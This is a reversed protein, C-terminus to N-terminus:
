TKTLLIDKLKNVYMKRIREKMQERIQSEEYVNALLFKIGQVKQLNESTKDNLLSEEYIDNLDMKITALKLGLQAADNDVNQEYVDQISM